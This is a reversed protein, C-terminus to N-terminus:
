KSLQADLATCWTHMAGCLKDPQALARRVHRRAALRDGVCMRLEAMLAHSMAFSDDVALAHDLALAAGLGNGRRYELAGYAHWAEPRDPMLRVLAWLAKRAQNLRGANALGVALRLLQPLHRNLQGTANM